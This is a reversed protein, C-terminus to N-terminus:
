KGFPFTGPESEVVDPDDELAKVQERGQGGARVDRQWEDFAADAFARTTFARRFEELGNAETIADPVTGPLKGTAFLLADGDRPGEGRFGIEDDRVLWGALKVDVSARLDEIDESVDSITSCNDEGRVVPLCELEAIADNLKPIPPNDTAALLGGTLLPTSPPRLSQPLVEDFRM